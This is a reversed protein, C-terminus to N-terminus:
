REKASTRKKSDLYSQLIFVAALRDVDGRKTARASIGMERLARQAQLSSLREDWAEIPIPVRRALQGMLERVMQAMNGESGNLHLPLGMVVGVIEHDRIIEVLRQLLEQRSKYSVTDL